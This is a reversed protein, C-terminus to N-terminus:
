EKLTNNAKTVVCTDLDKENEDTTVFCLCSDDGPTEIQIGRDQPIQIKEWDMVVWGHCIYFAWM